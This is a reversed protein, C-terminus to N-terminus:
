LRRRRVAPRRNTRPDLGTRSRAWGDLRGAECAAEALGRRRIREPLAVLLEYDEGGGAALELTTSAPRPRSRPSARRRGAARRRRDRDRRREGRRRAGRRGRARRQRRDDRTAGGAALALGAALRPAPRAPAGVLADAVEATVSERLEPRELLLLGAAAGGLEGTVASATARAPAPAASSGSPRRRRPRGGDGRARPGPGRLHRRRAVAVGHERASRRHRRGVRPVRRGRVDAPLGLQVYAEGAVAGM